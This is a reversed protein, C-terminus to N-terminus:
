DTNYCKHYHCQKMLCQIYQQMHGMSINYLTIVTKAKFAICILLRTLCYSLVLNKTWRQSKRLSSGHAVTFSSCYIYKVVCSPEIETVTRPRGLERVSLELKLDYHRHRGYPYILSYKLVQMLSFWPPM